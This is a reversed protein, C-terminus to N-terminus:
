ENERQLGEEELDLRNEIIRIVDDDFGEKRRFTHLERREHEIIATMVKKLQKIIKNACYRQNEDANATSYLQAKLKLLEQKNKLLRNNELDTSYKASLEDIAALLLACEIELAQQEDAKEIDMFEPKIWKVMWPLTFGQIVLTVIIVTFTIFLILNRFPFAHGDPLLLPISLASALSVVGRMGIWSVILPNRWGPNSQAV